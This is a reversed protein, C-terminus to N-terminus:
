IRVQQTVGPTGPFDTFLAGALAPVAWTLTAQQSGATATKSARGEWVKQGDSQRQIQVAVTTTRESSNRPGRGVPTAIITPGVPVGVTTGPRTVTTGDTQTIDLTAVYQAQGADPVTQFGQRRMEVAVSEAHTRFELSNAIAPDAPQIFLTGRNIPQNTHFRAVDAYTGGRGCASLAVMLAISTAAFIKRKM